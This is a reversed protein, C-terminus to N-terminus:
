FLFSLWLETAGCIDRSELQLKKEGFNCANMPYIEVYCQIKRSIPFREIGNKKTNQVSRLVLYYERFRYQYLM